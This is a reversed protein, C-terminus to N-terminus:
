RAIIVSSNSRLEPHHYCVVTFATALTAILFELTKRQPSHIVAKHHLSVSQPKDILDIRQTLQGWAVLM